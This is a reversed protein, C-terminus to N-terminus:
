YGVPIITNEDLVDFQIGVHHMDKEVTNIRFNNGNKSNMIKACETDTPMQICCAHTIKLARSTVNSIIVDRKRLIHLM